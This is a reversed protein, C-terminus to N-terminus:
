YYADHMSHTPVHISPVRALMPKLFHRRYKGIRLNTHRECLFNPVLSITYVCQTFLVFVHADIKCVDQSGGGFHLRRVTVQLLYMIPGVTRHHGKFRDVPM